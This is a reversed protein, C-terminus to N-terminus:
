FLKPQLVRKKNRFLYLDKNSCFDQEFAGNKIL